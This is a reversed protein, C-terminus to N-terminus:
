QASVRLVRFGKKSGVRDVRWGETGLWTALSDSGLHKQVVLHARGEPTLRSLWTRLLEHLAEKGIRIPPNSWILDFRVDDPVDDPGAVHVNVLGLRRANDVTLERARPNVDIAWVAAGPSLAALTLAVAGWGCGLDLFTGQAPPAPVHSFLVQTGRDLSAYSFVGRDSVATLTTGHTTWTVERPASGLRALEDPDADFYHSSSDSGTM